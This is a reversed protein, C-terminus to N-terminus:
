GPIILNVVNYVLETKIRHNLVEMSNTMASILLSGRMVSFKFDSLPPTRASEVKISMRAIRAVQGAMEARGLVERSGIFAWAASFRNNKSVVYGDSVGM